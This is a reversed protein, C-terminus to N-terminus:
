ASARAGVVLEAEERDMFDVKRLREGRWHWRLAVSEDLGLESARGKGHLTLLVVTRNAGVDTSDELEAEIWDWADALDDWWAVVGERGHFITEAASLFRPEMEFDDTAHAM